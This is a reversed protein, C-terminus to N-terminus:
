STKNYKKIFNNLNAQVEQIQAALSAIEKDVRSQLDTMQKTLNDQADKLNKANSENSSQVQGTLQSVAEQWTSDKSADAANAYVAGVIMGVTMMVKLYKSM